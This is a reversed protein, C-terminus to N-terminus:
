LFIKGYAIDMLDMPIKKMRLRYREFTLQVEFKSPNVLAPLRKHSM